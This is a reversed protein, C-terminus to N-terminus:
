AYRQILADNVNGIVNKVTIERKINVMRETFNEHMKQVLGNEIVQVTKEYAIRKTGTNLDREFAYM